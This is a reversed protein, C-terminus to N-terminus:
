GGTLRHVEGHLSARLIVIHGHGAKAIFWRMADIDHDGGGMLLLGGSVPAPASGTPDGELYVELVKARASDAPALVIGSLAMAAIWLGKDVIDGRLGERMGRAAYLPM